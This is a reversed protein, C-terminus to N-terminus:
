RRDGRRHRPRNTRGHLKGEYVPDTIMGELEATLRIADITSKVPIGYYDGAWGDFLVIEEM